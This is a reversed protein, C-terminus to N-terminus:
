MASRSLRSRCHLGRTASDFDEPPPPIGGSSASRSRASSRRSAGPEPGTVCAGSVVIGCCGARPDCVSDAECTLGITGVGALAGRGRLTVADRTGTGPFGGVAGGVDGATVLRGGIGGTAAGRTCGDGGRTGDCGSAGGVAESDDGSTRGTEGMAVGRVRGGDAGGPAAGLVGGGEAAGRVADGEGTV